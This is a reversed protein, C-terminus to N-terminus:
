LLLNVTLDSYFVYSIGTSRVSLPWLAFRTSAHGAATRFNLSTNLFINSVTAGGTSVYEM